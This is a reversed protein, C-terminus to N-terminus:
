ANFRKLYLRYYLMTIQAIAHHIWQPLPKPKIRAYIDYLGDDELMADVVVQGAFCSIAVGHGNFGHTIYHRNSIKNFIPLYSMPVGVPGTWLYDVEIHGKLDPLYFELEKLKEDKYKTIDDTNKFEPGGYILRGDVTTQIYSRLDGRSAVAIEGTPVVNKLTDEDLPKTVFQFYETSVTQTKEPSKEDGMYANGCVVVHDCVITGNETKVTVREKEDISLVATNEFIKAKNKVAAEALGFLYSLPNFAGSKTYNLGLVASPMRLKGQVDDHNLNEIPDNDFYHGFYNADHIYDDRQSQNRSLYTLGEVFDCDIKYKQINQIIKDRAEITSNWFAHANLRGHFDALDDLTTHLGSEILGGSRGTCGYGIKGPEVLVAKKGNESAHLLAEVGTFAGGIICIDCEIDKEFAPYSPRESATKEYWTVYPSHEM